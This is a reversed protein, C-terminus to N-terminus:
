YHFREPVEEKAIPQEMEMEGYPSNGYESAVQATSAPCTACAEVPYWTADDKYLESNVFESIKIRSGQHRLYCKRYNFSEFTFGYPDALGAVPLWTADKKFIGSRDNRGINCEGIHNHRIYHGPFNRSEFSIGEGALGPVITFDSDLCYLHSIDHADLWMQSDRHRMYRGPYNKSTFRFSKGILCSPATASVTAPLLTVFSTLALFLMMNLKNM